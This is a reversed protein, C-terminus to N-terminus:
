RVSKVTTAWNCKAGNAHQNPPSCHAFRRRVAARFSDDTMFADMSKQVCLFWFSESPACPRGHEMTTFSSWILAEDKNHEPIESRWTKQMDSTHVSSPRVAVQNHQRRRGCSSPSHLAIHTLFLTLFLQCM